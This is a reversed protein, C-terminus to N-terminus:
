EKRRMGGAPRTPGPWRRRAYPGTVFQAAGFDFLFEALDIFGAISAAGSTAGRALVQRVARRVPESGHGAGLAEILARWASGAEGRAAARLWAASARTTHNALGEAPGILWDADSRSWLAHFAGVLYDDGAPTSGVGLGVLTPALAEFCAVDGLALAEVTPEARQWVPALAALLSEDREILAELESSLVGLREVVDQPRRQLLEWAPRRAESAASFDRPESM